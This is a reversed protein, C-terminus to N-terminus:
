GYKEMRREDLWREVDEDSPAPKDTKLLGFLRSLAKRKREHKQSQETLTDLLDHMLAARMSLPWNRVVSLISEYSLTGNTAVETVQDPQTASM